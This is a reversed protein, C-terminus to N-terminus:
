FKESKSPEDDTNNVPQGDDAKVERMEIFDKRVNQKRLGRIEEPDNTSGDLNTNTSQTTTIESVNM